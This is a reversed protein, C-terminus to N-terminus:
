ERKDFVLGGEVREVGAGEGSGCAGEISVEVLKKGQLLFLHSDGVEGVDACLATGAECHLNCPAARVAVRKGDLTSSPGLVLTRGASSWTGSVRGLLTALSKATRERRLTEVTKAVFVLEELTGAQKIDSKVAGGKGEKWVLPRWEDGAKVELGAETSRWSRTEDEQGYGINVETATFAIGQSLELESATGANVKAGIRTPFYTGDTRVAPAALLFAAVLLGPM